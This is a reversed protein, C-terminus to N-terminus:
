RRRGRRASGRSTRRATMEVVKPALPCSSAKKAAKRMGSRMNWSTAAPASEEASMGTSAPRRARSSSRRAHRTAEVTVFRISAASRTRATANAMPAGHITGSIVGPEVRGLGLGTSSVRIMSTLGIRRARPATTM